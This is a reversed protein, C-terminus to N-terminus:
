PLAIAHLQTLTDAALVQLRLGRLGDITASIDQLKAVAAPAPTSSTAAALAIERLPRAQDAEAADILRQLKALADARHAALTPLARWRRATADWEHTALETDPPAPPQWPAVQHPLAALDVRAALHDHEGDIWATGPAAHQAAIDDPLDAVVGLLRGTATDYLSRASM